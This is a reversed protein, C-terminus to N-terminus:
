AVEAWGELEVVKAELAEIRRFLIVLPQWSIGSRYGIDKAAATATDDNPNSLPNSM